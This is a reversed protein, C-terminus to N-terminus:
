WLIYVRDHWHVAVGRQFFCNTSTQLGLSDVSVLCPIMILDDSKLLVKQTHRAYFRLAIAIASLGLLTSSLATLGQASTSSM